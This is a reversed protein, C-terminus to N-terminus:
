LFVGRCFCFFCWWLFVVVGGCFCWRVVVFVGGCFCWWKSTWKEHYNEYKETHWSARCRPKWSFVRVKKGKRRKLKKPTIKQTLFRAKWGTKVIFSTSKRARLKHHRIHQSTFTHHTIHHPSGVPGPVRGLFKKETNEEKPKYHTIDTIHSTQHSAIISLCLTSVCLTSVCRAWVYLAWVYRAWVYLAWAYLAWVYLAWLYM